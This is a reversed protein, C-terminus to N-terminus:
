RELVHTVLRRLDFCVLESQGSFLELRGVAFAEDLVGDRAEPKSRASWRSQFRSRNM